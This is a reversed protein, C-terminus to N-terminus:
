KRKSLLRLSMRTIYISCKKKSTMYSTKLKWPMCKMANFNDNFFTLFSYTKSTVVIRPVFFMFMHIVLSIFKLCSPCKENICVVVVRWKWHHKKWSRKNLSRFHEEQACSACVLCMVFSIDRTTPTERQKIVKDQKNPVMVASGDLGPGVRQRGSVAALSTELRRKDQRM